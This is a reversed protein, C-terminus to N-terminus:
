SDSRTREFKAEEKFANVLTQLASIQTSRARVSELAARRLGEAVDRVFRKEATVGDVQAERFGATGESLEVWAKARALRYDQEAAAYADVQERLVKLGEDLLRSLRSLETLM